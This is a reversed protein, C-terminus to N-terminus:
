KEQSSLAAPAGAIVKRIVESPVIATLIARTDNQQDSGKADIFKATWDTSTMALIQSCTMGLRDAAPSSAISKQPSKAQALSSPVAAFFASALLILRSRICPSRKM